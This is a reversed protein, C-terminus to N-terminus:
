QGHKVKAVNLLVMGVVLLLAYGCVQYPFDLFIRRETLDPHFWKLLTLSTLGGVFLFWGLIKM